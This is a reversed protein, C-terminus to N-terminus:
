AGSNVAGREAHWRISENAGMLLEIPWPSDEGTITIVTVDTGVITDTSLTIEAQADEQEAVLAAIRELRRDGRRNILM